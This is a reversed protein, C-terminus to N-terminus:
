YFGLFNWKDGMPYGKFFKVRKDLFPRLSNSITLLKEKMLSRKNPYVFAYTACATNIVYQMRHQYDITKKLDHIGIQYIINAKVEMHLFYSSCHRTRTIIITIVIIKVIIIITVSISKKHLCFFFFHIGDLFKWQCYQRIRFLFQLITM